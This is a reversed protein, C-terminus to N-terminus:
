SAAGMAYVGAVSGLECLFLALLFGFPARAKPLFCGAIALICGVGVAVSTAMLLDGTLEPTAAQDVAVWVLALLAAIVLVSMLLGIEVVRGWDAHRRSPLIPLTPRAAVYAGLVFAGIGGTAVAASGLTLNRFWELGTLASQGGVPLDDTFAGSALLSLALGGLAWCGLGLIWRM